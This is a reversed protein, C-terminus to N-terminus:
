SVDDLTKITTITKSVLVEKIRSTILESKDLTSLDNFDLSEIANATLNSINQIKQENRNINQKYDSIKQRDDAINKKHLENLSDDDGLLRATKQMSKETESIRAKLREIERNLTAIKFKRASMIDKIFDEALVDAKIKNLIIDDLYDKNINPCSCNNDRANRRDCRYYRRIYKGKPHNAISMLRQCEGCRIIGRLFNDEVTFMKERTNNKMRAQCKLWLEKSIIAECECHVPPYEKKLVRNKKRRTTASNFTRLGYYTTNKLMDRITSAKFPRDKNVGARTREKNVVKNDALYDIIESFKSGESYMTFLQIIHPRMEEDVRIVQNSDSYYGALTKGGMSMNLLFKSTMKEIAHESAIRSYYQNFQQIIGKHMEGAADNSFNEHCSILIVGFKQLLLEYENFLRVDRFFRDIRDVIICDVDHKAAFSCLEQLGDRTMDFMGSRDDDEFVKLIEINNEFALRECNERQTEFTNQDKEFTGAVSRRGYIVGTNKADPDGRIKARRERRRKLHNIEHDTRKM